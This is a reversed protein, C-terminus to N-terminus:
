IPEPCQDCTDPWGKIINKILMQLEADGYTAIYIKELKHDTVDAELEHISIDLGKVETNNGEKTNHSSQRSLANSLKM